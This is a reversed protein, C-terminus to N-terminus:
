RTHQIRPHPQTRNAIKPAHPGHSEMSKRTCAENNGPRRTPKHTEMQAHRKFRYRQTTRSFGRQNLAVAGGGYLVIFLSEEKVERLGGLRGYRGDRRQTSVGVPSWARDGGGDVHEAAWPLGSAMAM